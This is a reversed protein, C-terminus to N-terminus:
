IYNNKMETSKTELEDNLSQDFLNRYKRLLVIAESALTQRCYICRHHDLPYDQMNLHTLYKDGAEIFNLWVQTEAGPIDDHKFSVSTLASIDQKIAAIDDALRNYTDWDFIAVSDVFFKLDDFTSVNAEALQLIANNATPNFLSLEERLQKIQNDIDDINEVLADLNALETSANLSSVVAFVTSGNQFFNTFDRSQAKLHNHHTQIKDRVERIATYVYDFYTLVSPIFSFSQEYSLHYPM